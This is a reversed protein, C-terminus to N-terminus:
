KPRNRRFAYVLNYIAGPVCWVLLVIGGGYTGLKKALKMESMLYSLLLPPVFFIVAIAVLTLAGVLRRPLKDRNGLWWRMSVLTYISLIITVLALILISGNQNTTDTM